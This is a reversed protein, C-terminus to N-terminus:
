WTQKWYNIWATSCIDHMTSMKPLPIVRNINHSVYRRSSSMPVGSIRLIHIVHDLLYFRTVIIDPKQLSVVAKNSRSSNLSTNCSQVILPPQSTVFISNALNTQGFQILPPYQMMLSWIVLFDYPEFKEVGKVRKKPWIWSPRWSYLSLPMDKSDM